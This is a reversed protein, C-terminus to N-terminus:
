PSVFVKSQSSSSHAGATNAANHTTTMSQCISGKGELKVKGSHQNFECKDLNTMSKMGKKGPPINTSAGVEDGKSSPIVSGEVLCPKNRILVKSTVKDAGSHSAFNPYPTPIGGPGAPPPPAPLYNVTPPIAVSEGGETTSAPFQVASM